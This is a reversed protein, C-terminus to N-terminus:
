TGDADADSSTHHGARDDATCYGIRVARSVGRLGAIHGVRAICSRPRDCAGTTVPRTARHCKVSISIGDAPASRTEETRLFENQTAGVIKARPQREVCALAGMVGEARHPGRKPTVASISM